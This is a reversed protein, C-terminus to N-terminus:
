NRKMARYKRWYIDRCSKHCMSSPSNVIMVSPDDYNKCFQCKRWDPNGCEKLAREARHLRQHSSRSEIVELNEPRNDDRVQNKHHVVENQKLRRGISKEAVLIHELVYGFKKARPHNPCKSYIYGYQNKFRGESSLDFNDHRKSNHGSIFRFPEGKKWGRKAQTYPKLPAPQGCGCQCLGTNTTTEM